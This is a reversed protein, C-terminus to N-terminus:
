RLRLDRLELRSPGSGEPVRLELQHIRELNLTGRPLPIRVQRTEGHRDGVPMGMEQPGEPRILPHPAAVIANPEYFTSDVPERHLPINEGHMRFEPEDRLFELRGTRNYWPLCEVSQEYGMFKPYSRGMMM